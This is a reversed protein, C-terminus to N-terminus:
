LAHWWPSGYMPVGYLITMGYLLHMYTPDCSVVIQTGTGNFSRVLDVDRPTVDLEGSCKSEDSASWCTYLDVIFSPASLRDPTLEEQSTQSDLNGSVPAARAIGSTFAVAAIIAIAWTRGGIAAARSNRSDAPQM